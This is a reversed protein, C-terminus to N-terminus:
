IFPFEGKGVKLIDLEASVAQILAVEGSSRRDLIKLRCVAHGMMEEFAAAMDLVATRNKRMLDLMVRVEAAAEQPKGRAEHLRASSLLSRLEEVSLHGQRVSEAAAAERYRPVLPAVEEMTIESVGSHFLAEILAELASLEYASDNSENLPAAALANRYLDLGEEIRGEETAVEGLGKCARSELSFFGHKEGVDRAAQYATWADSKRDLFWLKDGKDCMAEGQDRFRKMKFLLSSRREELAIVSLAHDHSGTSNLGLGHAYSFTALVDEGLEDSMVGMMEEMRDRCKLVGRWDDAAHATNVKAVVQQLSLKPACAAKHLKWGAKQCEAGCYFAQKCRSCRNLSSGRKGCHACCTASASM